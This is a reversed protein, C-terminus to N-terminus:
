DATAATPVSIWSWSLVLPNQEHELELGRTGGKGTAAAKLLNGFPTDPPPSVFNRSRAKTGLPEQLLISFDPQNKHVRLPSALLVIGETGSPEGNIRARLPRFTSQSRIAGSVWEQIGMQADLFLLTVWYDDLGANRIQVEIRQGAHLHTKRLPEGSERGGLARVELEIDSESASNSDGLNGAIRWINRWTFIKQLDRELDQMLAEENNVAYRALVKPDSGPQATIGPSPETEPEIAGADGQVLLLTPEPLTLAYARRAEAASVVQLQWDAGASDEEASVWEVLPVIEASLKSVAAALRENAGHAEESKRISVRVRMNGLDRMVIRCVSGAHAPELRMAERGRYDCSEVVGDLPTSNVVRVYGLTEGAEADEQPSHVSLITGATVGRLSGATIRYEDKQVELFIQSGPPWTREGLVERDLDGAFFPTPGRSGREARYRRIIAQSLERYSLPAKQQALSQALVYTLLGHYHEPTRPAEAPRPLEPAQEFAQAAYVAAVSGAAANAVPTDTEHLEIAGEEIAAPAQRGSAANRARRAARTMAEGPIGLQAPSAGRAREASEAARMMTGSHCCDFIIWVHAGKARMRDLWQGIQNDRIANELGQASWKKVDAPLFVEDLGDPEPNEPALADTQSEPIPVQTGHGALVIVIQVGPAAKEILQEFATVINAHSPREAEEEPWGALKIINQPAFGFREQLLKDLIRVDNAPGYLEVLASQYPYKTCGVLLAFKTAKDVPSETRAANTGPSLLPILVIVVLAVTPRVLQLPRRIGNM